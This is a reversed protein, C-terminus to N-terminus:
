KRSKRLGKRLSKTLYAQFAKKPTFEIIEFFNQTFASNVMLGSSMVEQVVMYNGLFLGRLQVTDVYDYGKPPRIQYTVSLMPYDGLFGKKIEVGNYGGRHKKIHKEQMVHLAHKFGIEGDFRYGYINYFVQHGWLPDSFVMSVLERKDSSQVQPAARFYPPTVPPVKVAFLKFPSQFREWDDNISGEKYILGKQIKLSKFFDETEQAYIIKEEGTIVQRFRNSNSFAVVARLAQPGLDPDDYSISIEGGFEGAYGGLKRDQVIGGLEKYQQEYFDLERKILQTKLADTLAPGFTQDVNVIYNKVANRYPRQDILSVTEGSFLVREDDARFSVFKEHPKTPFILSFLGTESNYLEWKKQAIAGTSLGTVAILLMATFFHLSKSRIFSFFRM